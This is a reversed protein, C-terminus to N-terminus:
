GPPPQMLGAEILGLFLSAMHMTTVLEGSQALRVAEAASVWVTEIREQPDDVPDQVRRVGTVLVTHVKNAHTAPNPSATNILKLTEGVCGTEEALERAATVLPDDDGEDMRGAPVELTVRGVAQRYQKVLLVNNDADLPVIQVWDPYELVYYPSIEVGDPTLCTDARVGIWKDKCVYRSGILTWTRVDSM